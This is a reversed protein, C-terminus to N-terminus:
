SWKIQKKQIINTSNADRIQKVEQRMWLAPTKNSPNQQSGIILLISLQKSIVKMYKKAKGGNSKMKTEQMQEEIGQKRINEIYM